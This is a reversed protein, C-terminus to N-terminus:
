GSPFRHLDAHNFEAITKRMPVIGVSCEVGDAHRTELGYTMLFPFAVERRSFGNVFADQLEDIHPGQFFGWLGFFGWRREPIL